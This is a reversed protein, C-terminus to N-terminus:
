PNVIITYGPFLNRNLRSSHVVTQMDTICYREALTLRKATKICMAHLFRRLSDQEPPVSFNFNRAWIQGAESLNIDSGERKYRRSMCLKSANQIPWVHLLLPCIPIILLILLTVVYLYLSIFPLNM